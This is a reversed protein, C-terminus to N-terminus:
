WGVTLTIEFKDGDAIPTTDVGTFVKEGGKTICWWEQASSDAIRGDVTEIFLGHESESGKLLEPDHKEIAARLYEEDTNIEISKTDTESKIIEVTITKGGASTEPKMQSYVIAFVAALVVLVVASIVIIKTNSKKQEM